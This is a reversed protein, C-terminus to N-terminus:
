QNSLKCRLILILSHDQVLILPTYSAILRNQSEEKGSQKFNRPPKRWRRKGFGRQEERFFEITGETGKLIGQSNQHFLRLYEM